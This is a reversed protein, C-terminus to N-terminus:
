LIKNYINKLVTLFHTYQLNLYTSSIFSMLDVFTHKKYNTTGNILGIPDKM